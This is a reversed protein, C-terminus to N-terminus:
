RLEALLQKVTKTQGPLILAPRLDALPQLVFRREHARRHPIVLGMQDFQYNGYYIIDLDLPRPSNVERIPSRGREIEFDELSRYLNLPPLEMSEVLIEAM